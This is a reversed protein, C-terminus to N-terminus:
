ALTLFPSVAQDIIGDSDLGSLLGLSIENGGCDVIGRYTFHSFFALQRIQRGM